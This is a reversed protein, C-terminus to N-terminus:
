ERPANSTSDPAGSSQEARVRVRALQRLQWGQLALRLRMSNVIDTAHYVFLTTGVLAGVSAAMLALRAQMETFTAIWPVVTVLGDHFDYVRPLIGAWELVFPVVVACANALLNM